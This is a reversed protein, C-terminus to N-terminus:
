KCPAFGNQSSGVRPWKFDGRGKDNYFGRDFSGALGDATIRGTFQGPGNPLALTFEIRTGRKEIDANVVQGPDRGGEPDQFWVFDGEPYRAVTVREGLLDGTEEHLCMTSYVFIGKGIPQSGVAHTAMLILAVPMAALFRPRM